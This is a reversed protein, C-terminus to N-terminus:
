VWSWDFTMGAPEVEGIIEDLPNDGAMEGNDNLRFRLWEELNDDNIRADAPIEVEFEVKIRPM